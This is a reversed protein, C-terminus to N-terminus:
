LFNVWVSANSAKRFDKELTGDIVEKLVAVQCSRESVKSKHELPGRFSM